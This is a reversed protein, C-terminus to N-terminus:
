LKRSAVVLDGVKELASTEAEVMNGPVKARDQKKVVLWEGTTLNQM